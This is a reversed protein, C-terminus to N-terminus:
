LSKSLWDEGQSKHVCQMDKTQWRDILYTILHGYLSIFKGSIREGEIERKVKTQMKRQVEQM